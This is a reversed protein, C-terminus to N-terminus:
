WAIHDYETTLSVWHSATILQCPIAMNETHIGFIKADDALVYIPIAQRHAQELLPDKTQSKLVAEEILLLADGQKLSLQMDKHCQAPYDFRNIQHLRAM